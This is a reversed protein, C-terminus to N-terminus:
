YTVCSLAISCMPIYLIINPCKCHPITGQECDLGEDDFSSCDPLPRLGALALLGSAEKWESECISDRIEMCQAATPRYDDNNAGCVGFTYLCLFPIVASRCKESPQIYLDLSFILDEIEEEAAREETVMKNSMYTTDAESTAPDCSSYSQLAELCHGENYVNKCVTINTTNGEEDNVLTTNHM